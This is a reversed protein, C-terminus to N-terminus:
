NKTKIYIYKKDEIYKDIKKLIKKFYNIKKSVLMSVLANCM